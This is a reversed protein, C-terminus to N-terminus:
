EGTMMAAYDDGAKESIACWTWARWSCGGQHCYAEDRSISHKAHKCPHMCLGQVGHLAVLDPDFTGEPEFDYKYTMGVGRLVAATIPITVAVWLSGGNILRCSTM